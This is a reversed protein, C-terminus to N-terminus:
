TFLSEVPVRNPAERATLGLLVLSIGSFLLQWGVVLGLAWAATSPWQAWILVGAILAMVGSAMVWARHRQPGLRFALLIRFIGEVMFTAALILTLALVGAFPYILLLVGSALYLLGFLLHIAFGKWNRCRFTQILYAGGGVALLWGITFNATLAAILPLAIAASGLVILTIGLGLFWGWFRGIAYTMNSENILGVPKM